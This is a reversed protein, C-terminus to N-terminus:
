VDRLVEGVADALVSHEGDGGGADDERRSVGPRHLLDELIGGLVRVLHEAAAGHHEEVSLVIAGVRPEIWGQLALGLAEAKGVQQANRILGCLDQIPEGSSGCAEFRASVGRPTRIRM